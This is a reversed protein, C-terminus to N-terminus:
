IDWVSIDDETGEIGDPGKSKLEYPKGPAPSVYIYDNGWADKPVKEMYQRWNQPVPPVTPKEVLARLGQQTTPYFGNDMKFQELAGKIAKMQVKTTEVKGKDVSGVVNPIILAALLGLIILVALIEILTFGQSSFRRM